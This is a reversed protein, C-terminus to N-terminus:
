SSVSGVQGEMYLAGGKGAICVQGCVYVGGAWKLVYWVGVGTYVVM